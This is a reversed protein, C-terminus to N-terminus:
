ELEENIVRVKGKFGAAEILGYVHLFEGYSVGADARIFVWRGSVAKFEEGLVGALSVDTVRRSGIFVGDAQISVVPQSWAKSCQSFCDAPPQDLLIPQEGAQAAGGFILTAWLALAATGRRADSSPRKLM